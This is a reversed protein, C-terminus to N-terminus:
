TINHYWWVTEDRSNSGVSTATSQRDVSYKSLSALILHVLASAETSIEQKKKEGIHPNRHFGAVPSIKGGGEWIM